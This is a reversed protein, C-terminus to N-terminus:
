RMARTWLGSRGRGFVEGGVREGGQGLGLARDALGCRFHQEQAHVVGAAALHGGRQEGVV